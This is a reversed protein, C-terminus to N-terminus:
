EIIIGDEQYEYKPESGRQFLNFFMYIQGQWVHDEFDGLSFCRVIDHMQLNYANYSFYGNGNTNVTALDYWGYYWSYVKIRVTVDEAPLGNRRNVRGNILVSDRTPEVAAVSTSFILAGFLFLVGLSFLLTKNKQKM